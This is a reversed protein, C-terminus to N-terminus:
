AFGELGHILKDKPIDLYFCYKRRKHGKTPIDRLEILREPDENASIWGNIADTSFHGDENPRCLIQYMEFDGIPTLMTGYNVRANIKGSQNRNQYRSRILIKPFVRLGGTLSPPIVIDPAFDLIECIREIQKKNFNIDEAVKLKNKM